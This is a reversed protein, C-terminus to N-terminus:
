LRIRSPSTCTSNFATTLGSQNYDNLLDRVEAIFTRSQLELRYIKGDPSFYNKLTEGNGRLGHVTNGTLLKRVADADMIEAAFVGTSFLIFGSFALAITKM